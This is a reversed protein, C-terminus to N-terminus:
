QLEDMAVILSWLDSVIHHVVILLVHHGASRRFLTTRMAASAELNFPQRARERIAAGAAADDWDSADIHDFLVEHRGMARQVPASGAERFELRLAPHRDSLAQLASRFVTPDLPGRVSVPLVINYAPTGPVLKWLFWLAEQGHSLSAWSTTRGM